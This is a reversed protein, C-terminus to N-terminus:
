SFSLSFMGLNTLHGQCQREMIGCSGHLQHSGKPNFFDDSLLREQNAKKTPPFTKNPCFIAFYPVFFPEFPNSCILLRLPQIWKTTREHLNSDHENMKWTNYLQLISTSCHKSSTEHIQLHIFTTHTYICVYNDKSIKKSSSIPIRILRGLPETIQPNPCPLITGNTIALFVDTTSLM